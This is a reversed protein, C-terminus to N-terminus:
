VRERCSARGIQNFQAAPDGQEAAERFWKAAQGYEQPVGQGAQYCFGLYCQAVPDNQEASRRFWRVAEQYDLAVGQGTQYCVGLYCQAQADGEAAAKHMEEFTTWTSRNSSM